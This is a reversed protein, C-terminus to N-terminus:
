IRPTFTPQIFERRPYDIFVLFGKETPLALAAFVTMEERPPSFAKTSM